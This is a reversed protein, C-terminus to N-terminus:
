FDSAHRRSKISNAFRRQHKSSIIKANDANLFYSINSDTLTQFNAAARRTVDFPCIIVRPELAHDVKQYYPFVHNSYILEAPVNTVSTQFPFKGNNDDAYMVFASGIQRLNNVCIISKPKRSSKISPVFFVALIIVVVLVVLVEILTLGHAKSKISIRGTKM